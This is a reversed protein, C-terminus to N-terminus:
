FFDHNPLYVCITRSLRPFVSETNQTCLADHKSYTLVLSSNMQRRPQSMLVGSFTTDIKPFVPSPLDCV